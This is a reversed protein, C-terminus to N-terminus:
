LACKALEEKVIKNMVRTYDEDGRKWHGRTQWHKLWVALQKLRAGAGQMRTLADVCFM